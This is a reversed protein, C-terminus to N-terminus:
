LWLRVTLGPRGPILELRTALQRAIWLGQRGPQGPAPPVYGALPDDLGPGHDEIECVFWGDVLGARLATVGGGHRLANDFVQSAAILMNVVKQKPAEAGALEASLAERLAIVDQTLPLPRLPLERSPSRTFATIADDSDHYHPGAAGDTVVHPHTRWVADIVSDPTIQTDYVCLIHAPRSALAHNVIAEYSMWEEWSSRTPGLPIEAAVRVSTAGAATLRRLTADYSALADIPRTYFDECDTYAVQEADAGLEERLLAWHRRNLVTLTAGEELGARLFPAVHGVFTEDADAVIAEHRLGPHSRTGLQTDMRDVELVM